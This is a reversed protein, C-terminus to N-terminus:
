EPVLLNDFLTDVGPLRRVIRNVQARQEDTSILGSLTVTGNDVDITVTHTDLDKRGRLAAEIRAKLGADSHEFEPPNSACAVAFMAVIVVLCQRLATM